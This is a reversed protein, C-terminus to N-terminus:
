NSTVKVFSPFKLESKAIEKPWVAVQKGGQWQLMLGTILGKGYKISHTFPDDKGYFQIRGITGEWDTKELADVLKDADTSGARKVADAIYYVEDYSTYGAYSPYNGYRKKFDEAFPVSKPTVAVNPGSVGQYLVGEAADNTDKGFTENTAQSSIGFMPIPVQQNKWQVTPQVGVHSIGTIIVDPKTGEIKNFIPTFDTTDPSFRIHDLMKLGIKPLCEEYGVDLPKTWAADESMVVATKMHKQDVLLDKAADCVSLALAASTLYGHFTYKNKDYDAHVSKSIENSAAGPTVFPTKLRSAWPELALVVESIYSAIVINVKDENVARQFARVSDASSSHNDYSVIEIKRGDIGGKANIEDAAMQAAQPISAGAIAQAEAIVGIKLPDAALAGTPALAVLGLPLALAAAGALQQM